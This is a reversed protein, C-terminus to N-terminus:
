LEQFLSIVQFCIVSTANTWQLIILGNYHQSYYNDVFNLLRTYRQESYNTQDIILYKM